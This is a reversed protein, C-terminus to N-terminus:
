VFRKAEPADSDSIKMQSRLRSFLGIVGPCFLWGTSSTLHTAHFLCTLFVFPAVVNLVFSKNAVSLM